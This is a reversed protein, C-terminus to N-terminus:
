GRLGDAVRILVQIPLLKEPAGSTCVRHGMAGEAWSVCVSDDFRRTKWVTAPVGRVMPRALVVPDFGPRALKDADGQDVLLREESGEPAWERFDIGLEVRESVFRYGAPLWSPTLLLAADIVPRQEGTAGDVVPRGRLPEPLEITVTREYGFDACGHGPPLPAASLERVTVTMTDGSVAATAQYSRACPEDPPGPPGGTFYLTLPERDGRVLRAGDWRVPQGRAQSGADANAGAARGSARGDAGAIWVPGVVVAGIAGVALLASTMPRLWLRGRLGGEAMDLRWVDGDLM